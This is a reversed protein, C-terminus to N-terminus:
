SGSLSFPPAIEFGSWSEWRKILVPSSTELTSADCKKLCRRRPAQCKGFSASSFIPSAKHVRQGFPPIRLAAACAAQGSPGPTVQLPGRVKRRPAPKLRQGPPHPRPRGGRSPLEAAHEDPPIPRSRHARGPSTSPAAQPRLAGASSRRKATRLAKTVAPRGRPVAHATDPPPGVHKRPGRLDARM